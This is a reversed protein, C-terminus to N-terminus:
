ATENEGPPWEDHQLVEVVLHEADTIRSSFEIQRSQGSDSRQRVRYIANGCVHYPYSVGYPQRLDIEDVLSGDRDLQRVRDEDVELVHGSLRSTRRAFRGLLVEFIGLIAIMLAALAASGPLADNQVGTYVAVVLVVSAICCWLVLRRRRERGLEAALGAPYEYRRM